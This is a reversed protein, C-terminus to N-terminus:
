RCCSSIKRRKDLMDMEIVFERDLEIGFSSAIELYKNVAEDYSMTSSYFLEVYRCNFELGISTWGNNHSFYLKPESGVSVKFM